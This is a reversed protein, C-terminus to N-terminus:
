SCIGQIRERQSNETKLLGEDARLEFITGAVSIHGRMVKDRM